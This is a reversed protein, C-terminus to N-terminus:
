RLHLELAGLPASFRATWRQGAAVPWADTWTGTTVVDGAQLDPAGPCARLEQLFHHLARLPSDLVLAGTGQDVPEGDRLLSVRAGALLTDLGQASDSLSRIDQRRGVLLRGHLGGDAVTDAITFKWDPHHSQVIEFGPAIWEIAEWLGQLSAGPAPSARMGFVTEPEIRPQCTRALSLSGTGECLHLSSDWVGGWIPAFVQYRPWISRNTFGIKYGRPTEGRAIRLQRVALQCRYASALDPVPPTDAPWLQALDHHHLIDAPTIM